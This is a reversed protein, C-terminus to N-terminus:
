VMLLTPNELLEKLDTLFAAAPAGDIIRHDISLNLTMMPRLQITGNVGVPKEKIQGVALIALEPQNIIPTMSDVAYMGLNSITFTSGTLQDPKLKGERALRSISKSEKTLDAFGLRDVNEVVPVILGNPVSVALGINIKKHFIITDDQLSANLIPHKSLAKATAKMIIETYSLREGTQEQIVPLLQERLEKVKLMDVESTLTAHPASFASQVMRQAIVKRMGELKQTIVSEKQRDSLGLQIKEIVDNRVIKGHVGSGKIGDLPIQQEEAVKRALPTAKVASPAEALYKEVDSLHVRGKSGSGKINKLDIGMLKAMKRAAPTRRPKDNWEIEKKSNLYEIAPNGKTPEISAAAAAKVLNETDETVKEGAEGIYGIVKHVPVEEDKQYNIKLVTGSFEAEVEINTKDTMVEFLPEGAKIYDGEQKYWQLITGVEMSAGLQPMLIKEAM